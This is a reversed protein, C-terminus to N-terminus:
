PVPNSKPRDPQKLKTIMSWLMRMVEDLLSVARKYDLHALHPLRQAIELQTGLEACSGYSISLFQVYEGRHQRNYGEAINSADSVAAREMQSALGYREEQPFQKTLKYVEIVLEM